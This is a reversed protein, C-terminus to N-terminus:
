FRGALGADANFFQRHPHAAFNHYTLRAVLGLHHALRLEGDVGAHWGFVTEDRDRFPLFEPGISDPKVHYGGIGAFLGATYFSEVFLYSAGITGYEIRERYAPLTLAGPAGDVPVIVTAGANSGATRMSGYTLRLLTQEQLRYDLWGTVESKKFRNLHFGHHNGVDNVFGATAGVGWTSSTQSMGSAALATGLLGLGLVRKRLKV